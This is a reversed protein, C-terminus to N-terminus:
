FVSLGCSAVGASSLRARSDEGRTPDETNLRGTEGVAVGLMTFWWSGLGLRVLPYDVCAHLMVAILGIGWVSQVGRRVGLVLLASMLAVVGIGGEAAWQGWESHAHNATFGFDAVAYAPYASTWTGLGFGTLPRALAMAAASTLFERRGAYPDPVWFRQWVTEPGALLAFATVGALLLLLRSGSQQVALDRRVALLLGALLEITVLVTGARSTSAIVSGYMLSAVGAYLWSRRRTKLTRWLALPFLLEIFAAYNNYNTFTGFIRLEQPIPILWLIQGNSTYIQALTLTCMVAGFWLLGNLFYKRDEILTGLGFFCSASLWYLVALETQAPAQTWGLGLQVVGWAAISVLIWLGWHGRMFPRRLLAVSTLALAGAELLSVAWRGEVWITAVGFWLLIWLAIARGKAQAKM